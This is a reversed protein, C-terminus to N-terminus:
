NIEHENPLRRIKTAKTRLEIPLQYDIINAISQSASVYHSGFPFIKLNEDLELSRRSHAVKAVLSSHRPKSVIM